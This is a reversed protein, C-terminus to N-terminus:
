IGFRGYMGRVAIEDAVADAGPLGLREMLRRRRTLVRFRVKEGFRARMTPVLHGVGDVLGLGLAEEGVWFEGNFLDAGPALRDGRRAKVWEVFQHHIRDQLRHLRAVDREQEPRFPDWFSKMEGATHVRREIGLRAIADHLGFSAAIVGISGVISSADAYIEDAACALWYGGSAAVDACFAIVPLRKEAALRRIRAAIMASQTASGGPCNIALAVASAGRMSFARELVPAMQEDDFARGIRGAAIVAGHLPVIAVLPRRPRFWGTLAAVTGGAPRGAAETRM